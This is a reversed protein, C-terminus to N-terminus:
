FRPRTRCPTYAPFGLAMGPAPYSNGSGGLDLLVDAPSLGGATFLPLAGIQIADASIAVLWALRHEPSRVTKLFDFVERLSCCPYLPRLQFLYSSVRFVGAARRVQHSEPGNGELRFRM